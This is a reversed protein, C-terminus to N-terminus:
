SKRHASDVKAHGVVVTTRHDDIGETATERLLGNSDEISNM